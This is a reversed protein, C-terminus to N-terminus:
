SAEGRENGKRTPSRHARSACWGALRPGRMLLYLGFASQLIFAVLATWQHESMRQYMEAQGEGPVGDAIAHKLLIFFVAAKPIAWSLVVIGAVVFAVRYAGTEWDRDPGDGSECIEDLPILLAAIGRRTRLVLFGVLFPLAAPLLVAPFLALWSELASTPEPGINALRLGSIFAQSIVRISQLMTHIGLFALGVDALRRTKM